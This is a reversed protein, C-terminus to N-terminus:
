ANEIKSRNKKRQYKETTPPASHPEKLKGQNPRGAPRGGYGTTMSALKCARHKHGPIGCFACIPRKDPTWRYPQLQFDPRQMPYQPYRPVRPFRTPETTVTPLKTATTATANPLVAPETTGATPQTTATPDLLRKTTTQTAVSASSTVTHQPSRQPQVKFEKMVFVKLDKVEALDSSNSDSNRTVASCDMPEPYTPHRAHDTYMSVENRLRIEDMAATYAADLTAPQRRAVKEQLKRDSLGNIFSRVMTQIVNSEHQQGHYARKALTQLRERCHPIDENKKQAFTQVRQKAEKTDDLHKYQTTMMEKFQDWDGVKSAVRSCFDLPSGKLLRAAAKLTLNQDNYVDLKVSEVSKIWRRLGEASTGDFQSREDLLKPLALQNGLSQISKIIHATDPSVLSHVDPQRRAAPDEPPTPPVPNPQGTPNQAPDQAAIEPFMGVDEDPLRTNLPDM